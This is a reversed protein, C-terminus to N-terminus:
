NLLKTLLWPLRGLNLFIVCDMFEKNVEHLELTEFMKKMSKENSDKYKVESLKKKPQMKISFEGVRINAM